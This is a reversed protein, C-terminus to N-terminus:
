ISATSFVAQTQPQEDDDSKYPDDLCHQLTSVNQVTVREEYQLLLTNLVTIEDRLGQMEDECRAKSSQAQQGMTNVMSILQKIKRDAANLRARLYANADTVQWQEGRLRYIYRNFNTQLSSRRIEATRITLNQAMMTRQQACLLTMLPHLAQNVDKAPSAPPSTPQGQLALQKAQQAIIYQQRKFLRIAPLLVTSVEEATGELLQSIPPLLMQRVEEATGELQQTIPQGPQSSSRRRRNEEQPTVCQHTPEGSPQWPPPSEFFLSPPVPSSVPTPTSGPTPSTSQPSRVPSERRDQWVRHPWGPVSPARDDPPQPQQM